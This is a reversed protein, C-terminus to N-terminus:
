YCNVHDLFTNSKKIIKEVYQRTEPARNRPNLVFCRGQLLTNGPDVPFTCSTPDESDRPNCAEGVWVLFCSQVEWGGSTGETISVVLLVGLNAETGSPRSTPFKSSQQGASHSGSAPSSKNGRGSLGGGAPLVATISCGRGWANPYRVM